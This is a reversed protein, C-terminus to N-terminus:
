AEWYHKVTFDDRDGDQEGSWTVVGYASVYYRAICHLPSYVTTVEVGAGGNVVEVEVGEGTRLARAVLKRWLTWVTRLALVSAEWSQGDPLSGLVVEGERKRLAEQEAKSLSRVRVSEYGEPLTRGKFSWDGEETCEWDASSDASWEELTYAAGDVLMVFVEELSNHKALILVHTPIFPNM